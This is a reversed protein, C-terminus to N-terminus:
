AAERSMGLFAPMLSGNRAAERMADNPGELARSVAATGASRMSVDGRPPRPAARAAEVRARKREADLWAREHGLWHKWEGFIFAITPDGKSRGPLRAGRSAAKLRATDGGALRLADRVIAVDAPPFDALAPAMTLVLDATTVLLQDVLVELVAPDAGAAAMVFEAPARVSAVDTAAHTSPPPVRAPLRAPDSAVMVEHLAAAADGAEAPVAREVDPSRQDFQEEERAPLDSSSSKFLDESLSIRLPDRLPVARPVPPLATEHHSKQVVFAPLRIEFVASLYRSRNTRTVYSWRELEALARFMTTRGQGMAEVLQKAAPAMTGDVERHMVLAVLVAKHQVTLRPDKLDRVAWLLRLTDTPDLTAPGRRDTKMTTKMTTATTEAPERM